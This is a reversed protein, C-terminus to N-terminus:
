LTLLPIDGEQFSVVGRYALEAASLESCDELKESVFTGTLEPKGANESMDKVAFAVAVVCACVALVVVSRIVTKALGKNSAEKAM